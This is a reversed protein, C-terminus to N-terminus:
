VESNNIKYGATKLAEELSTNKEFNLGNVNTQAGGGYINHERM